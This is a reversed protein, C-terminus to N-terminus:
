ARASDAAPEFGQFRDFEADHHAQDVPVDVVFPVGAANGAKARELAADLGEVSEVRM